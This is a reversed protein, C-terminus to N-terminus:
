VDPMASVKVILVRNIGAYRAKLADGMSTNLAEVDVARFGSAHLRSFEIASTLALARLRPMDKDLNHASDADKAELTLSVHMRGEIQSPSMIPMEMAELTVFFPTPNVHLPTAAGHVSGTTLASLAAVAVLPTRM